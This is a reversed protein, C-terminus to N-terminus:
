DKKLGKRLKDFVEESTLLKEPHNRADEVSSLIEDRAEDRQAPKGFWSVEYFFAFLVQGFSYTCNDFKIEYDSMKIKDYGFKKGDRYFDSEKFITYESKLKIPFHKMSSMHTFSMAYTDNQGIGSFRPYINGCLMNKGPHYFDDIVDSQWSFELYQIDKTAESEENLQQIYEKCWCGIISDFLEVNEKVILLLDNLTAGDAFVVERWLFKYAISTVDMDPNGFKKLFLKGNPRVECHDIM